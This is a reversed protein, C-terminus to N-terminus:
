RPLTLRLTIPHFACCRPTESSYSLVLYLKGAFCRFARRGSFFTHFLCILARCLPAWPESRPYRLHLKPGGFHMKEGGLGVIPARLHTKQGGLRQCIQWFFRAQLLTKRPRHRRLPHVRVAGRRGCLGVRPDKQQKNGYRNYVNTFNSLRNVIVSAFTAM